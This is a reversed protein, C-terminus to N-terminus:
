LFRKDCKYIMIQVHEQARVRKGEKGRSALFEFCFRIRTEGQVGWGVGVWGEDLCEELGVVGDGVASVRAVCAGGVAVVVADVAAVVVGGEHGLFIAVRHVGDPHHAEPLAGVFRQPQRHPLVLAAVQDDRPDHRAAADVSLPEQM